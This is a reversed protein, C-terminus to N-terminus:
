QLALILDNTHDALSAIADALDMNQVSIILEFQGEVFATTASAEISISDTASGTNNGTVASGAQAAGLAYTGALLVVGGTLNTTNIELNLTSAKAGTTVAKLCRVDFKLIKFKYGLVYNTVLDGDAIVAADIHFTLTSVGVGAAITDSATGTSNDTLSNPLAASLSVPSGSPSITAGASITNGTATDGAYDQFELVVASSSPFSIVKFHGFNSGDSAIVIQNVAMWSSNAVLATVNASAAPIVFDATTLTFANIGNAGAAGDAGDAGAVGPIDVVITQGCNPCCSM